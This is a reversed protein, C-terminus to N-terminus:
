GHRRWLTEDEREAAARDRLDAAISAAWTAVAGHCKTAWTEANSAQEGFFAAFSHVAAPTSMARAGLARAPQSTAGFRELLECALPDLDPQYPRALQAAVAGRGPDGGVWALLKSVPVQSRAGSLIRDLTIVRVPKEALGALLVEWLTDAHETDALEAVARQAQHSYGDDDLARLM